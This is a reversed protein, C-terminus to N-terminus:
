TRLKAMGDFLKKSLRGDTPAVSIGRGIIRGPHGRFKPILPKMLQVGLDQEGRKELCFDVFERTIGVVIDSFQLLQSEEMKTFGVSDAFNLKSLPGCLYKVEPSDHCRGDHFASRYEQHFIHAAGGDPWDLMVEYYSAKLDSSHLGLRM